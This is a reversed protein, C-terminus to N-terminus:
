IEYPEAGYKENDGGETLGMRGASTRLKGRSADVIPSVWVSQQAPTKGSEKRRYTTAAICMTLHIDDVGDLLRGVLDLLSIAL